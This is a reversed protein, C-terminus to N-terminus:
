CAGAAPGDVVGARFLAIALIAPAFMAAAMEACMAWSHRRHRMWLTMGITMNLAMVLAFVEPASNRVHKVSTGAASLILGDLAGLAMMGVMMAFFMEAFHRVFHRTGAATARRQPVTSPQPGAAAPRGLDRSPATSTAM